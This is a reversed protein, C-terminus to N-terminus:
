LAVVVACVSVAVPKDLAEPVDVDQIAPVLMATVNLSIAVVIKPWVILIVPESLMKCFQFVPEAM